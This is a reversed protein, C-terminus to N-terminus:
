PRDSGYDTPQYSSRVEALTVFSAPCNEIMVRELQVVEEKSWKPRAYPSTQTTRLLKDQNNHREVFVTSSVQLRAAKRSAKTM